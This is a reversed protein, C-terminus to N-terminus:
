ISVKNKGYATLLNNLAPLDWISLKLEKALLRANEDIGGLSLVLASKKESWKNVEVVSNIFFSNIGTQAAVYLFQAVVALVFHPQSWMSREGTIKDKHKSVDAAHEEAHVYPQQLLSPYRGYLPNASPNNGFGRIAFGSGSGSNYFSEKGPTPGRRTSNM